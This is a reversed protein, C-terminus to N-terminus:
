GFDAVDMPDSNLTKQSGPLEDRLILYVDTFLHSSM